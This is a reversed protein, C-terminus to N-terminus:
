RDTLVFRCNEISLAIESGSIQGAIDIVETELDLGKFKSCQVKFRGDPL